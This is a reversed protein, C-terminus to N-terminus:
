RLSSVDVRPVSGRYEPRGFPLRFSTETRILRDLVDSISCVNGSVVGRFFESPLLYDLGKCLLTRSM